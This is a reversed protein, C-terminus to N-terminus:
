FTCVIRVELVKVERMQTQLGKMLIECGGQDGACDHTNPLTPVHPQAHTRERKEPIRTGQLPRKVPRQMVHAPAHSKTNSCGHKARAKARM